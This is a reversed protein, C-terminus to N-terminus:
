DLVRFPVAPAFFDPVSGSVCAAFAPDFRRGCAAYKAPAMPNAPLFEIGQLHRLSFSLAMLARFNGETATAGPILPMRIVYPAGGHADLARLNELLPTAPAATLRM